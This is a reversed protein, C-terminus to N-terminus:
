RGPPWDDITGMFGGAGAKLHGSCRRFLKPLIPVGHSTVAVMKTVGLDATAPAALGPLGSRTEHLDPPKGPRHVFELGFRVVDETRVAVPVM